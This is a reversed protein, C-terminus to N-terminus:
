NNKHSQKGAQAHQQPTGGRPKRSHAYAEESHAHANRSHLHSKKAHKRAEEHDGRAHHEAAQRHHFAASEHFGAANHHSGSAEPYGENEEDEADYLMDGRTNENGRSLGGKRGIERYFDEGHTAATAEGGLKGTKEHQEQTANQTAM